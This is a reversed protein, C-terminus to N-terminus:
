RVFIAARRSFLALDDVVCVAAHNGVVCSVQRTTSFDIV